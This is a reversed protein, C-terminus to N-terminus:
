RIQKLIADHILDPRSWPIFHNMGPIMQMTVPANTLMRRAFQANGPPVLDDTEGQIVTVPVRITAWGPKMKELEGKLPWIEMNSVDFETPLWQRVPFSGLVPRYWEQAELAPDVSGAVLILGGVADPFDIALRVAVPGGLSHGVLIPKQQGVRGLTLLPALAAAQAQLSPEPQGLESKGFGPRDASILHAKTYLTSDAFFGIFADWSGPSGHIFLVTPLTDAGIQAYHVRHKGNSVFGFTPKETREAFFQRVKKDSMRISVCQPLFAMMGVTIFLLLAPLRRHKQGLGSRQSPLNRNQKNLKM